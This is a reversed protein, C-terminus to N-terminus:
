VAWVRVEWTQTHYVERSRITHTLNSSTYAQLSGAVAVSEAVLGAAQAAWTSSSALGTTRNIRHSSPNPNRDRTSLHCFTSSPSRCPSRLLLALPSPPPNQLEVALRCLTRINNSFKSAVSTTTDWGVAVEVVQSSRSDEAM